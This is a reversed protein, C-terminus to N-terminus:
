DKRAAEVLKAIDSAVARGLVTIATANTKDSYPRHDVPDEKSGVLLGFPRLGGAEDRWFKGGPLRLFAISGSAGPTSSCDTLVVLKDQERQRWDRIRCTQAILDGRPVRVPMREQFTSVVVLDSCSLDRMCRVLRWDKADLSFPRSDAIPHELRIVARDLDVNRNRHLNRTGITLRGAQENGEIAGDKLETAVRAGERNRFACQSLPERALDTEPDILAHANTLVLDSRAVLTAALWIANDHAAGPCHFVGINRKLQRVDQETLGLREYSRDLSTRTDVEAVAAPTLRPQGIRAPAISSAASPLGSAACFLAALARLAQSSQRRDM